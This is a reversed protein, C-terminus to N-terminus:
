CPQEIVRRTPLANLEKDIEKIEKITDTVDNASAIKIEVQAKAKSMKSVGRPM